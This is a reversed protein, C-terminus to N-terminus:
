GISEFSFQVFVCHTLVTYLQRMGADADAAATAAAEAAVEAEKVAGWRVEAPFVTLWHKSLLKPCFCPPNSSHLVSM